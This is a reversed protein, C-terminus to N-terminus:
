GNTLGKIFAAPPEDYIADRIEVSVERMWEYGGVIRACHILITTVSDRLVYAVLKNHDSGHELENSDMWDVIASQMLVSLEGYHTQYFSNGPLTILAEWMMKNIDGDSVPKDRDVLDDWTQSIGFLVSCFAVAAQDDLLVHNLFEPENKTLM